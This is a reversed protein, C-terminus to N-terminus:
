TKHYIPHHNIRRCKKGSFLLIQTSYCDSSGAQHDQAANKSRTGRWESVILLRLVATRQTPLTVLSLLSVSCLKQPGWVGQLDTFIITALLLM